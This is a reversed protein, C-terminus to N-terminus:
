DSNLSSIVSHLEGHWSGVEIGFTREIKSNSLVSNKPRVAASLWQESSIPTISVELSKRERTITLIRNAFEYWNTRESSCFHYTGWNVFSEKVVSQAIKLLTTAISKASTPCGWQDNVVQLQDREHMLRLMTNVFNNGRASYVWSTRLIIHKEWVKRLAEEGALKSAGYVSLPNTQDDEKYVGDKEGDFVFDTSIHLLPIDSSQCSRALNEVGNSNVSFADNKESEARDVATYAAANIVVDPRQSKIVADVAVADTIDLQKSDYALCSIGKLHAIAVLESGVQGNAGTILVKM